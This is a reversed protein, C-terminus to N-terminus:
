AVKLRPNSRNAKDTVISVTPNANHSSRFAFTCGMLESHSLELRDALLKAVSKWQVVWGSSGRGCVVTIGPLEHSRWTGFGLKKALERKRFNLSQIEQAIGVIQAIYARTQKKTRM